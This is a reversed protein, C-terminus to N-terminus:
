CCGCVDRMYAIKAISPTTEDVDGGLHVFRDAMEDKRGQNFDNSGLYGCIRRIISMRTPNANGCQPCKFKWKGDEGLVMPIEKDYGCELCFDSKTNLEGYLITDYLFKIVELVAPINDEMHVCEAYHVSGGPSLRQFEAEVTFKDFISIKERVSLHSSNTVYDHSFIEDIEPIGALDQFDNRLAKAFKYTTSEIPTGYLSYSINEETRWKACHDNMCDMIELAFKRTEPDSHSKGTLAYVCEYLGAYGVSITSYNNFLLPDIVAGAPFRALAGYRWLLPAAEVRTGRLRKHRVQLSEHVIDLTEEMRNWFAKIREEQSKGKADRMALMATYPLNITCVGSNFRGWYKYHIFDPTLASRCGMPAYTPPVVKYYPINYRAILREAKERQEQPLRRKEGEYLAVCEDLAYADLVDCEGDSLDKFPNKGWISEDGWKACRERISLLKGKYKWQYLIKDSWYDPVMRRATCEAGLVTLWWYPTDERCNLESLGYVLKPFAPSVWAGNENKTGQKRQRFIEAFVAAGDERQSEPLEMLDM